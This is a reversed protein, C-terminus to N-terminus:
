SINRVVAMKTDNDKKTVNSSQEIANTAKNMYQQLYISDTTATSTLSDIRNSIDSLWTNMQDWTADAAHTSDPGRTEGETPTFGAAALDNKLDASDWYRADKYIPNGDGDYGWVRSYDPDGAPMPSLISMDGGTKSQPNCAQLRTKLVRLTNILDNKNQIEKAKGVMLSTNTENTQLAVILYATAPDLDTLDVRSPDSAGASVNSSVAASAIQAIAM